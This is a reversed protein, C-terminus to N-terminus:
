AGHPPDLRINEAIDLLAMRATEDSPMFSPPKRSRVSRPNSSTAISSMSIPFLAAVRAKVGAYAYLDSRTGSSLGTLALIAKLNKCPLVRLSACASLAFKIWLQAACGDVDHEKGIPLRRPFAM